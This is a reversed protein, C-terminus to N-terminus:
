RDASLLRVQGGLSPVELLLTKVAHTDLLMQLTLLQSLTLQCLRACVTTIRLTQLTQIPFSLFIRMCSQAGQLWTNGESSNAFSRYAPFILLLLLIPMFGCCSDLVNEGASCWNRFYTQMQIYQQPFSSCILSCAAYCICHLSLDHQFNWNQVQYMLCCVFEKTIVILVISSLNCVKDMFYQFYLPSLLGAIVPVSSSLIASIGNVYSYGSMCGWTLM